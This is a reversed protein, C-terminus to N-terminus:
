EASIQPHFFMREANAYLQEALQERDTIGRHGAVVELVQRAPVPLSCLCALHTQHRASCGALYKCPPRCGKCLRRGAEMAVARRGRGAQPGGAEGACHLM